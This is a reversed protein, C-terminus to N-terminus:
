PHALSQAPQAHWEARIERDRQHQRERVPGAMAAVEDPVGNPHQRAAGDHDAERNRPGDHDGRKM